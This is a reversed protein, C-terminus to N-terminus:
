KLLRDVKKSAFRYQVVSAGILIGAILWVLNIYTM